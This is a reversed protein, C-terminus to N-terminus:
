LCSRLRDAPVIRAECTGSHHLFITCLTLPHPGEHERCRKSRATATRLDTVSCVNARCLRCGLRLCSQDKYFATAQAGPPRCGCSTTGM